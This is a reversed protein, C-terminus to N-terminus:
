LRELPQTKCDPDWYYKPQEFENRLVIQWDGAALQWGSVRGGITLGM